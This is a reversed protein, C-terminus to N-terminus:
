RPPRPLGNLWDPVLGVLLDLLDDRSCDIEGLLWAVVASALGSGVMVAATAREASSREPAAVELYGTLNARIREGFLVRADGGATSTFVAVLDARQGEVQDLIRGVVVRSAEVGEAAGSTRARLDEVSIEILAQELVYLALESTSDFHAYFSSRNLGAREVIASVSVPAEGAVATFAQALRNRTRVARPDTSRNM